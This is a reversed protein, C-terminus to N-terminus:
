NRRNGDASQLVVDARLRSAALFEHAHRVEQPVPFLVMPNVFTDGRCNVDMAVDAVQAHGHGVGVQVVREVTETCNKRM